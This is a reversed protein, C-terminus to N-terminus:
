YHIIIDLPGTDPLECRGTVSMYRVQCAGHIKPQLLPPQVRTM